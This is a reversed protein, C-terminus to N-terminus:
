QKFKRKPKEEEIPHLLFKKGNLINNLIYREVFYNQNKMNEATKGHIQSDFDILMKTNEENPYYLLTIEESEPPAVEGEELHHEIDSIIGGISPENGNLPAFLLTSKEQEWRGKYTVFAIDNRHSLEEAFSDLDYKDNHLCGISGGDILFPECYLKGDLDMLVTKNNPNEVFKILTYENNTLDDESIKSTLLMDRINFPSEERHHLRYHIDFSHYGYKQILPLFEKKALFITEKYNYEFSTDNILNQFQNENLIQNFEKKNKGLYNVFFYSLDSFSTTDTKKSINFYNIVNNKNTTITKM